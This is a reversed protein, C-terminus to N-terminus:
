RRRRPWHRWENLDVNIGGDWEKDRNHFHKIAAECHTFAENLTAYTSGVWTNDEETKQHALCWYDKGTERIIFYTGGNGTNERLFGEGVNTMPHNEPIRQWNSAEAAQEEELTLVLDSM